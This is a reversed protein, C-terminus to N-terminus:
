VQEVKSRVELYVQFSHQSYCLVTKLLKIKVLRFAMMDFTTHDSNVKNSPMKFYSIFNISWERKGYKKSISTASGNLFLQIISSTQSRASICWTSGLHKSNLNWVNMKLKKVEKKREKQEIQNDSFTEPESGFSKDLFKEIWRHMPVICRGM